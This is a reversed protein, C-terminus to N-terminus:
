LSKFDRPHKVQALEIRAGPVLFFCPTKLKRVPARKEQEGNDGWKEAKPPM